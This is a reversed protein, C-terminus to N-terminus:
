ESTFYENLQSHVYCRPNELATPTKKLVFKKLHSYLRRFHHNSHFGMDSRASKNVRVLVIHHNRSDIKCDSDLFWNLPLIKSNIKFLVQISRSRIHTESDKQTDSEGVFFGEYLTPHANNELVLNPPPTFIDLIKPFTIFFPWFNSRSSFIPM